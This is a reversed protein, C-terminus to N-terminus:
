TYSLDFAVKAVRTALTLPWRLQALTLPRRRPGAVKAVRSVPLLQGTAIAVFSYVVPELYVGM